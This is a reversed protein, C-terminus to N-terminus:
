GSVYCCYGGHKPDMGVRLKRWGRRKSKGQTRIKWKREGYIKLGTSDVALVMPGNKLKSPVNVKSSKARRSLTTYNPIKAEDQKLLRSLFLLLGETSRLPLGFLARLSLATEILRDDYIRPRGRGRIRSFRPPGFADEKAWITLARRSVFAPNHEKWKKEIRYVVKQGM